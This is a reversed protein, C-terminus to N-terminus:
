FAEVAFLIAERTRAPSAMVPITEGEIESVLMEELSMPVPALGRWMLFGAVAAALLATPVVARAWSQVVDGVTLRAAMRRRALERAAGNLVWGRFRLWYNPDDNAPDMYSLAQAIEVDRGLEDTEAAERWERNM